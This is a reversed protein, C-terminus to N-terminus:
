ADRGPEDRLVYIAGGRNETREAFASPNEPEPERPEPEPTEVHPEELPEPAPDISRTRDRSTRRPALVPEAEEFALPDAAYRQRVAPAPETNEAAQPSKAAGGAGGLIRRRGEGALFASDPEAPVSSRRGETRGGNEPPASAPARVTDDSRRLILWNTTWAAIAASIGVELAALLGVQWASPGVTAMGGGGLPGGSLASLVATVVGTLAGSFFGWLPAAEYVQSPMARVTLTGGVAGAAFPVALALLSVLPAPGPEPLAALPPFAPVVDMFVGTPSVSTGVGVSFGPGIAYAMGWIVANPLFALEILLLLIGGVIGPALMDYLRTAESMHVALSAGVLIAGTALLVAVSGAVGIMLSRPREPLLRLLAGLGSRVRHGAAAQAVVARAAGLGGAILAVMFCAVLAQWASPRIVPSSAALALLGALLAYPAALALAVHAVAIRPRRRRVGGARIMWGGSRHLLAGPVVIVGLPLLGVRGHQVSFGAHHSVLWFNIATRFVGPLGVGLATRPAAIWGILTVTTLVALGIGICWLAGVLGTVYLPRPASPAQAGGRGGGSPEPPATVRTGPSVDSVAGHQCGGQTGM